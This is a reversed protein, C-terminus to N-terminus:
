LLFCPQSIELHPFKKKLEGEFINVFQSDPYLHRVSQFGFCFAFRHINKKISKFVESISKLSHTEFLRNHLDHLYVTEGHVVKRIIITVIGSHYKKRNPWPILLRLEIDELLALVMQEHSEFNCYSQVLQVLSQPLFHCFM